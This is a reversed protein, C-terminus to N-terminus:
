RWVPYSGLLQGQKELMGLIRIAGRIKILSIKILANELRLRELKM